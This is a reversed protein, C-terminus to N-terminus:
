QNPNKKRNERYFVFNPGETCEHRNSDSLGENLHCSNGYFITSEVDKRGAAIVRRYKGKIFLERALLSREAARLRGDGFFYEEEDEEVEQLHEPVQNSLICNIYEGFNSRFIKDYDQNEQRIKRDAEVFMLGDTRM